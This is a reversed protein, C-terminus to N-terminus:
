AALDTLTQLLPEAQESSFPPSFLEANEQHSRFLDIIFHLRDPLNAWDVAGSDQLNNPTPDNAALFDLLTPNQLQSLSAPFPTKLDQNLHLTQGNALELVMLHRTLLIRLQVQLESVLAQLRLDTPSPIGLQRRLTFYPALLLYKRPFLLKLLQPLLVQADPIAANLAETIEPQLRTQEHYGIEINALLIWEERAKADAENAANYYHMFAQQLYQQGEPPNGPRLQRSFQNIPEADPPGQAPMEQLFCAFLYGIEAFVKQNGRAIADSTREIIGGTHLLAQLHGGLQSESLNIQQALASLHSGLAPPLLSAIAKQFDEQRISQGAQRSAWTAFTCWNAGPGIRNAMAQSLEYYCQTILQNRLVPDPLQAIHNVLTHSIRMKSKKAILPLCTNLM